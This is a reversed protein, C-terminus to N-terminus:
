YEESDEPNTLCCMLIASQTNDGIGCRLSLYEGNDKYAIEDTGLINIIDILKSCSYAHRTDNPNVRLVGCKEKAKCRIAEIEELTFRQYSDDASTRLGYRNIGRTIFDLHREGQKDEDSIIVAGYNEPNSALGIVSIDDHIWYRDNMELTALYWEPRDCSKLYRQYNRQYRRIATMINKSNKGGTKELIELRIQERALNIAKDVEKDLLLNLMNEADFTM